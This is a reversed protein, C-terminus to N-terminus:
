FVKTKVIVIRGGYNTKVIIIRGDYNTKVITIRVGYYSVIIRQHLCQRSHVLSPLTM